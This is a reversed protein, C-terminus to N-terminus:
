KLIFLRHIFPVALMTLFVYAVIVGYVSNDSLNLRGCVIGVPICLLIFVGELLLLSFFGKMRFAKFIKKAM